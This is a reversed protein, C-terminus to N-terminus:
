LSTWSKKLGDLEVQLPGIQQYRAAKLGEEAQPEPWRRNSLLRPVEDRIVKKSQTIHGPHVGYEAALAHITRNGCIAEPTMNSTFEARYQRRELTM